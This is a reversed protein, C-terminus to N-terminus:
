SYNLEWSMGSFRVMGVLEKARVRFSFELALGHKLQLIATELQPAESGSEAYFSFKPVCYKTFTCM